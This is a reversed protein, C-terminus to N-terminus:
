AERWGKVPVKLAVVWGAVCGVTGCAPRKAEGRKVRRLWINQNYRKPETRILDQIESLLDYANTAKSRPIRVVRRKTAKKAM